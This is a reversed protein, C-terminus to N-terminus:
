RALSVADIDFHSEWQATGTGHIWVKIRNIASRQPWASLDLTVPNWQGDAAVQTIGYAIHGDASYVRIQAQFPGNGAPTDAPLRLDLALNPTSTADVPHNYVVDAGRWVQAETVNPALDADFHVRLFGSGSAADASTVSEAANGNDAARWGDVSSNEFDALSRVATAPTTSAPLEQPIDRVALKAPDFNPIAQKWDTIGIIPLAFKTVDLSRATDIYKFVNHIYKPQGPMNIGAVIPNDPDWTWLGLRLGGEAPHDVERHYNFADIGGAFFIKYYAYAYCAAQLKQDDLTDGPTNCGQESLIIHRQHGQFLQAPQRLYEPLIQVNKFTIDPSDFSNTADPDNWTRPNFLDEPYPHYAVNWPYDGEAKGTANLGDLIDRGNYSRLPLDPNASSNWHLELSVYVRPDIYYRRAALYMLRLARGYYEVFRDLTQDGMQYWVWAADVENGVVFDTVRGYKEDAREYRSALFEFAARVYRVGEATKTNFAFVTGQSQDADPDVLIPWASNPNGTKLLLLIFNVIVGNSTLARVQRDLSTVQGKDFYYTQGGSDFTLYTGPGGPGKLMLFDVVVNIGAHQVGLQEADDTMDALSLGKITDTRPYASTNAPRFRIDTPYVPDGLVTDGAVALFKDDYRDVGAAYRPVTVSFTGDPRARTTAIPSMSAYAAPEQSPDLAYIAVSPNESSALGGTITVTADTVAVTRVGGTPGAAAAVPPRAAVVLCLLAASLIACLASRSSKSM